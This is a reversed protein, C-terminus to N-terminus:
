LLIRLILFAVVIVLITIASSFTARIVIQALSLETPSENRHVPVEHVRIRTEFSGERFTVSTLAM